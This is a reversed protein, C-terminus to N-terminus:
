TSGNPSRGGRGATAVGGGAAGAEVGAPSVADGDGGTVAGAAVATSGAVTVVCADSSGVFVVDAASDDESDTDVSVPAGAVGASTVGAASLAAEPSDPVVAPEASPAVGGATGASVGLSVAALSTSGDVAAAVALPSVPAAGSGTTAGGDTM